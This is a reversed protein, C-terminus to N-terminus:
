ANYDIDLIIDYIDDRILVEMREAQEKDFTICFFMHREYNPLITSINNGINEMHCLWDERVCLIDYLMDVDGLVRLKGYFVEGWVKVIDANRRRQEFTDLLPVVIRVSPFLTQILKQIRTDREVREYEDDYDEDDEDDDDDDDTLM